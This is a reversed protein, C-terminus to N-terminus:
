RGNYRRWSVGDSVFWTLSLSAIQTYGENTYIGTAGGSTNTMVRNGGSQNNVGVLRNVNIPLTADPLDINGSHGTVLLIVVDDDLWTISGAPAHVRAPKAYLRGGTAKFNGDVVFTGTLGTTHTMDNNSQTITTAATLTGGLKIAGSALTLGNSVAVAEAAGAGVNSNGILTAAPLNALKPLTVAGAALKATTVADAALKTDTVNADLIKATTVADAKIVIDAGTDDFDSTALVKGIGAGVAVKTDSAAGAPKNTWKTTALDYTLLDGDALVGTNAITTGQLKAVLPVAATGGLDGALTVIGSVLNTAAAPTAAAVFATTAIQTTNTGPAATPATPVGTFAPAALPAKLALGPVTPFAATGGLDGALQVVGKAGATADGAGAAPATNIWNTGDYSLINGSALATIVVPTTQIKAVTPMAATGGLDGAWTAKLDLAGQTATSIPKDADAINDVNPLGVETKTLVVVGTMGAVSAVPASPLNILQSGDVAPLRSTGDLQVVNNAATGVNKAAATGLDATNAKLSLATQAATSVPKLLDTTNDVQDLGVMTKDIGSVTGTFTPSAIPAKLALADSLVKGQNASLPATTSTSNLADIPTAGAAAAPAWVTGNYTLVQNTTPATASVAVNKIKDVTVIGTGGVSIDGSMVVPAKWEAATAGTNVTLIHGAATVTPVNGSGASPLTVSGGNSLSLVSGSLSLSQNDSDYGVYSLDVANGGSITLLNGSLTLKQSGGKLSSLDVNNGNSIGLSNSTKDFTLAQAVPKNKLDNFDGSKAVPALDYTLGEAKTAVAAKQSFYASPVKAILTKGTLDATGNKDIDIEISLDLDSDWPLNDFVGSIVTGKGVGLNIVGYTDTTANQNESYLLTGAKDAISFKVAIDTKPVLAGTAKRVVAQYNFSKGTQAFSTNQLAICLLMSVLFTSIKM